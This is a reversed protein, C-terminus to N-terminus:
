SKVRGYKDAVLIGSRRKEPPFHKAVLHTLIAEEGDLTDWACLKCRWQTMGKWEGVEYLVKEEGEGEPPSPQPSPSDQTLVSTAPSSEAAVVTLPAEPEPGDIEIRNDAGLMGQQEDSDLQRCGGGGAVDVKDGDGKGDTENGIRQLRKM